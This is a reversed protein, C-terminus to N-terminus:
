FATVKKIKANYTIKKRNKKERKREKKKSDKSNNKRIKKEYEFSTKQSETRNTGSWGKVKKKERRRQKRKEQKKEMKVPNKTKM